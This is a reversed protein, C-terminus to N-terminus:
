IAGAKQLLAKTAKIGAAEPLSNGEYEIGIHGTFGAAKVIGLMKSYDTHVENGNEDFEHSKASVGKAFLMLEQVGQYRDYENVCGDSGNEICFNGFDPLTGCFESDVQSIVDSLWKGDSSYGGHNEVIVNIGNESGYATLRGLGDVAAAKVEEATGNGAANVRISHCGLLAAINIWQYHNEVAKIRDAEDLDGLNGEGDCMILLSKVGEGDCQSKMAKWYEMDNKKSFYFQNVYEVADVGFDRKAISPFDTVNLEGQLISDPDKQRMANFDEWSLERSKGFFSRNLSWQALSISFFLAADAQLESQQDSQKGSGSCASLLNTSGFVALGTGAMGLTKIAKRRNSNM